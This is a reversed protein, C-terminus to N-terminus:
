SKPQYTQDPTPFSRGRVEEAYQAVSTEIVGAIDAYKKVFRPVREFMGLMDETVLV